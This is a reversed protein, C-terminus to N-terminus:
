LLRSLILTGQLSLSSENGDRGVINLYQTLVLIKNM